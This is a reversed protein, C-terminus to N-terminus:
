NFKTAEFLLKPIEERNQHKFIKLIQSVKPNDNFLAKKEAQAIYKYLKCINTREVPAPFHSVTLTGIEDIENTLSGNVNWIELYKVISETFPNLCLRLYFDCKITNLRVFTQEIKLASFLETSKCKKPIGLINKIINGEIRKITLKETANLNFNELGYYLVPRIYTNYLHGKMSPHMVESIFGLVRLKALSSYAAKKQKKIHLTNKDDDSVIVGLYKVSEVQTITIGNLRLEGQWMDTRREGADRTVNINFIMFTTKTPNYSIENQIGYREVICIQEQLGIKNTSILVIDDAYVIVDIKQCGVVLGSACKELQRILEDLYVSFFKPSMKGGQKVGLTTQFLNSYENGNEVLMLSQSYYNVAAIIISPKVGNKILKLWLNLRNVKDFAKSADIACVYLRKKLLKSIKIAQKLVFIAHSCSSREKFGFQKVHDRYDKEIEQLLVAEFIKSIADSVAVPRLNSIQDSPKISDKVLPKIISINYLYPIQRHCISKEFILSLLDYLKNDNSYKIMEYSVGGFGVSKGNPLTGAIERVVQRNLKFNLDSQANDCLFKNL